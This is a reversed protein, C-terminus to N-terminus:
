AVQIMLNARRSSIVQAVGIYILTLAYTLGATVYVYNIPLFQAVTYQIILSGILLTTVVVVRVAILNRADPHM